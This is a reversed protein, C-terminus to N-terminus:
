PVLDAPLILYKGAREADTADMLANTQDMGARATELTSFDMQASWRWANALVRALLRPDGERSLRRLGALYDNRVIVPVLIRHQGVATLEANMALRAVRGNGDDFPHVESVLFMMFAARAFPLRLQDRLAFGRELTGRVLEPAVFQYSGFRNAEQKFQGPRKDTRAAMLRAHRRQLQTLFEAGSAAIDRGEDPDRILEFTSIVDHADAPRASPLAHDYIIRIAEEVTFETGEIFNSLYAEFFAQERVIVPVLVPMDPPDPDLEGTGLQEAFETFRALRAVDWGRGRGLDALLGRHPAERTGLVTGFMEDLDPFRGELGLEASLERARDRFRNLREAPYQQALQAVWAALEDDSLTRAIGDRVRSPVLNEVLGRPISSKGLGAMWPMDDSFPRHGRRVAVKLGPLMLDRARQGSAIFLTDGDFLVPGASRDVILADPVFHALIEWVNARVLREVPTVLDTTYVGRIIMRARGAAIARSPREGLGSQDFVIAPTSRSVRKM